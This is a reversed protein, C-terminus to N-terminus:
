TALESAPGDGVNRVAHGTAAPVTLGEGTGGDRVRHRDLSAPM